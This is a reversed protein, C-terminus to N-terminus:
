KVAFSLEWYGWYFNVFAKYGGYRKPFPVYSHGPIWYFGFRYDSSISITKFFNKM